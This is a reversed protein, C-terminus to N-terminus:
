QVSIKYDIPQKITASQYQIDPQYITKWNTKNGTKNQMRRERKDGIISAYKYTERKQEELNGIETFYDRWYLKQQRISKPKKEENEEQHHRDM